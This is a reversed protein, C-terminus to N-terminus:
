GFSQSPIAPKLGRPAALTRITTTTRPRGLLGDTSRHTWRRRPWHRHWRVVTEPQVVILASRWSRWAHALLVWFLRDRPRVRARQVTRKFVALQQRLAVNKLAVARHGGCILVCSRLVVLLAALMLSRAGCDVLSDILRQGNANQRIVAQASM